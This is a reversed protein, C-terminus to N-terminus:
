ISGPKLEFPTPLTLNPNPMVFAKSPRRRFRSWASDFYLLGVNTITTPRDGDNAVEIVFLTQGDYQPINLTKMNTRASTRVKPGTRRWKYVDWAFVVTSLVAGWWAVVETTTAM